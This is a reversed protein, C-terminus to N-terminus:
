HLVHKIVMSLMLVVLSSFYLSCATKSANVTICTDCNM